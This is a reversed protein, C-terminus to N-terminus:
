GFGMALDCFNLKQREGTTDELYRADRLARLFGDHARQCGIYYEFIVDDALQGPRHLRGLLQQNTDGASSPSLVLARSYHQLNKGTGHARASAICAVDYTEVENMGAGFYPHGSAKALAEGVAIQEVWVIGKQEHIWDAAAEFLAMAAFLARHNKHRWPNAAYTRQVPTMSAPDYAPSMM